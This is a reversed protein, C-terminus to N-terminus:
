YYYYVKCQRIKKEWHNVATNFYLTLYFTRHNSIQRPLSKAPTNAAPPLFNALVSLRVSTSDIYAKM